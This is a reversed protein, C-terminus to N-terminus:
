KEEKKFNKIMKDLRNEENKKLGCNIAETRLEIAGFLYEIVESRLKAKKKNLAKSYEFLQTSNLKSIEDVEPKLKIREAKSLKNIQNSM